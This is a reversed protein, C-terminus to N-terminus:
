AGADSPDVPTPAEGPDAPRGDGVWAGDRYLPRAADVGFWAPLEAPDVARLPEANDVVLQASWSRQDGRLLLTELRLHRVLEGAPLRPGPDGQCTYCLRAGGSPDTESRVVRRNRCERCVPQSARLETLIANAGGPLLGEFRELMALLDADDLLDSAQRYRGARYEGLATALWFARDEEPPAITDAVPWRLTADGDDLVRALALLWEREESSPALDAIALCVSSGLALPGGRQEDLLYALLYLRRALQAGEPTPSEYAVEEALRFYDMPESPTLAGLRQELGVVEARSAPAAWLAIALALLARAALRNFARGIM